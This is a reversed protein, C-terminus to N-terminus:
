QDLQSRVLKSSDAPDLAAERLAAVIAAYRAVDEADDVVVGGAPLPVFVQSPLEPQGFDFLTFGGAGAAHAGATFPLVRLQVMASDALTLLRHLQGEILQGGAAQHLAAEGLIVLTPTPRPEEVLRRAREADVEVAREVEAPPVASGAASYVARSYRETRLPAPILNPEV